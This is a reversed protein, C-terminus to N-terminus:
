VIYVGVAQFGTTELPFLPGSYSGRALMAVLTSIKSSPSGSFAERFFEERGPGSVSALGFDSNIRNKELHSRCFDFVSMSILGPAQTSPCSKPPNKWATGSVNFNLRRPEFKGLNLQTCILFRLLLFRSNLMFSESPKIVMSSSAPLILYESCHIRSWTLKWPM